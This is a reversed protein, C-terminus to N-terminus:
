APVLSRRQDLWESLTCAADWVTAGWVGDLRRFGRVLERDDDADLLRRALPFLVRQEWRSHERQQRVYRGAERLLVALSNPEGYTAGEVQNRMHALLKRQGDHESALTRLLELEAGAARAMLRPLLVREEKEQHHGDVEREFFGLLRDVADADIEGLRIGEAIESEFRAVLAGIAAHERTLEILAKM